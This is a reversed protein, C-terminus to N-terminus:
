RGAKDTGAYFILGDGDNQNDQQVSKGFRVLEEVILARCAKTGAFRSMFTAQILCPFKM